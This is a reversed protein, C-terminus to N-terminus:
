LTNIDEFPVIRQMAKIIADEKMSLMGKARVAKYIEPETANKLIAVELNKDMEFIESVAIRGSIGNPCEPTPQIEYVEQGFSLQKKFEAPLDEFQKDIMLKISDEIPIPKGGNPCLRRVLRQAM